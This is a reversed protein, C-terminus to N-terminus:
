KELYFKVLTLFISIYNIKAQAYRMDRNKKVIACVLSHGVIDIVILISHVTAIAIGASELM